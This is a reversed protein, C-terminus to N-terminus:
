KEAEYHRSGRFEAKGCFYLDHFGEILKNAEKESMDTHQQYDLILKSNAAFLEQYCKSLPINMFNVTILDSNIFLKFFEEPGKLLGRKISEYYLPSGPYPCVPRITRLQDHDTHEIIFDANNHLTDIDDGYNNWLMNIGVCIDFEKTLEIANINQQVTTQKNMLDLVKQSTSEVGLNLFTCGLEKLLEMKVRTLGDVRANASFKIEMGRDDLEHKIRRLRDKSAVFMEDYLFYGNIGYANWLMEMEDVVNKASRFRVGHELRQCFNCHGVCGRSTTFGICRDGKEQGWLHLASSYKEMDFLEYAPFPLDDLSKPPKRRETEVIRKDKRYAIGDVSHLGTGNTICELLDVITNEAEGICVSDIRTTNLFYVPIASACHGGINLHARGKHEAIVSLLPRITEVFRACLFSLCILDYENADLHSALQDNTYHYAAMDYVECEAGAQMLSSALSGAWAPYHIDPQYLDHVVLLVRGLDSKQDEM